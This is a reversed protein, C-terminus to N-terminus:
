IGKTVEAYRKELELEDLPYTQFISPFVGEPLERSELIKKTQEIIDEKVKRGKKTLRVFVDEGKLTETKILGYNEHFKLSPMLYFLKGISLRSPLVWGEDTLQSLFVMDTKNLKLSREKKSLSLIRKAYKEMNEPKADSVISEFDKEIERKIKEDTIIPLDYTADELLAIGVKRAKSKNPYFLKDISIKEEAISDLFKSYENGEKSVFYVAPHRAAKIIFSGFKELSEENLPKTPIKYIIINEAIPKIM